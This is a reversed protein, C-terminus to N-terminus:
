APQARTGIAALAGIPDDPFVGPAIRCLFLSLEPRSAFAVDFHEGAEDTRGLRALLVGRWFTAEQNGAGLIERGAALDDLAADITARDAALPGGLVGEQSFLELMRAYFRNLGVLRRLEPLPDPHDDVRCDIRTAEWWRDRPEDAIVLISASQRGRVDGGLAEAADLAALLRDALDGEAAAYADLMASWTGARLLMNGQATVQHGLAHGAAQACADGTHAACRGTADVFGLQRTASARDEALLRELAEPASAGGAMLELGRPGYAVEAFAQTAIAGVGPRAWGVVRGVGFFHSQVAVGLEGTRPDRAVISYTM